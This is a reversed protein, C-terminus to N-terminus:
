KGSIRQIADKAHARVDADSDKTAEQLVPLAAKAVPGLAELVRVARARVYHHDDKVAGIMAPVILDPDPKLAFLAGVISYRIVGAGIVSVSDGHLQHRNVGAPM